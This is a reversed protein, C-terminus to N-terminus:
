GRVLRIFLLIGALRMAGSLTLNVWFGYSAFLYGGILPSIIATMANLTSFLATYRARQDEPIIALLLSFGALNYGAWAFGSLTNIAAAHLPTRVILWSWPILPILLGSFSMVWKAGKRDVLPGFYRMGILATFSSVMSVWGVAGRTFGLDKVMYASFFPAAVQLGLGWILNSLCYRLFNSEKRLDQWGWIRRRTRQREWEKNPPEPIRSYTITSVLGALFALFFCIQYGIPYGGYQIVQGALPVAILTCVGMALQRSSFYRGRIRLPVIDGILSTWAPYGFNDSFVRLISLIILAYIAPLGRLLFPILAYLLLVLRSFGKGSLLVIKKRKGWLESVRAGPIQAVVNAVNSLSSLLGIQQVTGGMDLLYLPLYNLFFGQSIAVFVGDLWFMRLAKHAAPQAKVSPFFDPSRLLRKLSQGIRM